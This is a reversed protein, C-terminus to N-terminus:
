SAPGHGIDDRHGLGCPDERVRARYLVLEDLLLQPQEAILHHPYGLVEGTVRRKVPLAFTVVRRLTDDFGAAQPNFESPQGM